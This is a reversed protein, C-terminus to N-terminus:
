AGKLFERTQQIKEVDVNGNAEWHDLLQTLTFVASLRIGVKSLAEGAGSQRDILVVVDKVQLGAGTLKEVAEFKSGGTTALDDIVVVTEGSSFEGEIEAKTGYSKVEKRPYIMAWGSQLSIAAAIPLAAYPLAALRNFKIRGLIPLYLSAAQELLRPHSVLLRLDIYIPSVLGSKLKFQGFKVCGAELLGDALRAMSLPIATSTENKRTSLVKKRTRNIEDKLDSAAKNPDEARSLSRSANVLLGSGDQRLGAQLAAELDGGQAGIGPALFWLDPALERVRKLQDPHTAGVVLGLNQRSNLEQALLAVKEYLRYKVPGFPGPQEGFWRGNVELDQLDGSGPNSTKCLLFVGHVPDTLFPEIADRGLYPNVTVAGAGLTKFVARAYAEATSSIDGRKADLIVPIGEPVAAIVKRLVAMGEPGYVEFFAINPKFVLASQHTAEVLRLCFELLQNPDESKLDQPHPDIGVCLLSDVEKSRIDLLSFFTNHMGGIGM